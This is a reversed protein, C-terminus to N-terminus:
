RGAAEIGNWSGEKRGESRLRTDYCTDLEKEKKAPHAAASFRQLPPPVRLDPFLARFEFAFETSSSSPFTVIRRIKTRRPDIELRGNVLNCAQVRELRATGFTEGKSRQKSRAVIVIGIPSVYIGAVVQPIEM